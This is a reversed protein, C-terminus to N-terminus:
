DTCHELEMERLSSVGLLGRGSDRYHLCDSKYHFALPAMIRFSNFPAILIHHNIM